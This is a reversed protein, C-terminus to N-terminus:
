VRARWKSPPMGTWQRFARSFSALESFGLDLALTTLDTRSFDLQRCALQLRTEHLLAGYSSGLRELTMQLSRPHVNLLQAVTGLEYQGSPLLTALARRIQQRLDQDDPHGIPQRYRARLRQQLEPAIQVPMAILAAPYIIRTGSSGWQVSCGLETEIMAQALGIPRQIQFHASLPRLGGGQLQETARVAISVNNLHAQTFQQAPALKLDLEVLLRCGQLHSHVLLGQSFARIQREQLWAADGITNQAALHLSLAGVVEIGQRRGLLLGFDARGSLAASQELLRAFQLLSVEHDPSQLEADGFGAARALRHGPLGLENMLAVYGLLSSSRVLYPM